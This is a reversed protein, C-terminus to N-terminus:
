RNRGRMYVIPPGIRLNKFWVEESHNQLGLFGQRFRRALEPFERATADVVVVGNHVVRYSTGLCNIEMTNWEGPPRSVHATAPAVLYISGSYQTPKLKRYREATDDLLQVEAGGGERHAGDPPVRLYIGSNGGALLKYEFRFNFDAYQRKSRLWTGKQGTCKLMGDAVKWSASADATVGEWGSLDRGNFLAHYCFDGGAATSAPAAILCAALFTHFACPIPKMPEIM